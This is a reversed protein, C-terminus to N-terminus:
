LKDRPNQHNPSTNKAKSDGVSSDNHSRASSDVMESTKLYKPKFQGLYIEFRHPKRKLQNNCCHVFLKFQCDQTENQM